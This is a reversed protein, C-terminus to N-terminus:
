AHPIEPQRGLHGLVLETLMTPQELNALHGAGPIVELRASPIGKAVTDSHPFPLATDAEGAIVLTPASIRPLDRRLDVPAIAECCGAIGEPSMAELEGITRAVVEPERTRFGPSFFGSTAGCAFPGLGETRIEAALGTWAAPPHQYASTCCLVLSSVRDPHHVALWMGVIGGLSLGCFAVAGIGLEDLLHVLDGGLDDLTYPGPPVPSRGHGRHDYRLVRFHRRFPGAQPEWMRLSTGLSNSLVLVPADGPGAFEQALAPHSMTRMRGTTKAAGGRIVNLAPHALRATGRVEAIGPPSEEHKVYTRM